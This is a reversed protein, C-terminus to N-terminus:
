LRREKGMGCHAICIPQSVSMRSVHRTIRNRMNTQPVHRTFYHYIYREFIGSGGYNLRLDRMEGTPFYCGIIISDSLCDHLANKIKLVAMESESFNWSIDTAVALGGCCHKRRSSSPSNGGM